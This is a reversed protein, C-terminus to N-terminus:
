KTPCSDQHVLRVIENNERVLIRSTSPSEDEVTILPSPSWPSEVSRVFKQSGGDIVFGPSTTMWIHDSSGRPILRFRAIDGSLLIKGETGQIELIPEVGLFYCGDLLNAKGAPSCAGIQLVITLGITIKVIGKFMRHRM